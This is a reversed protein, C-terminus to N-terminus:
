PVQFGALEKEPTYLETRSSQTKRNYDPYETGEVDTAESLSANEKCGLNLLVIAFGYILLLKKLKM